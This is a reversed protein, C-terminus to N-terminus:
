IHDDEDVRSQITAEITDHFLIEDHFLLFSMCGWLGFTAGGCGCGECGCRYPAVCYLDECVTLRQRTNVMHADHSRAHAAPELSSKLGPQRATSSDLSRRAATSAATSPSYLGQRDLGISGTLYSDLLQRTATSGTSGSQMRGRMRRPTSTQRPRNLERTSSDLLTSSPSLVPYGTHPRGDPQIVLETVHPTNHLSFRVRTSLSVNLHLREESPCVVITAVPVAASTCALAAVPVRHASACLRPGGGLDRGDM